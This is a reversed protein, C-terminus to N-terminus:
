KYKECNYHDTEIILFYGNETNVINLGMARHYRDLLKSFLADNSRIKPNLGSNYDSDVNSLDDCEFTIRGISTEIYYM